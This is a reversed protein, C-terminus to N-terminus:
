TRQTKQKRCHKLCANAHRGRSCQILLVVTSPVNGFSNPVRRAPQHQGRSLSGGVLIKALIGDEEIEFSVVAKDTQIDCLVDGAQIADGPFFVLVSMLASVHGRTACVISASLLCVCVCAPLM